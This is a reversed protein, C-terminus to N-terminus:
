WVVAVLGSQTIAEDRTILTANTELASAVILRDHIDPLTALQRTRLAMAPTLAILKFGPTNSLIAVVHPLNLAVRQKEAIIIIEALVLPSVFVEEQDNVARDLIDRATQSLRPSGSWYWILPHTDVAYRAM